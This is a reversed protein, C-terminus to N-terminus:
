EYQNHKRHNTVWEHTQQKRFQHKEKEGENGTWLQTPLLSFIFFILLRVEWLGEVGIGQGLSNRRKGRSAPVCMKKLKKM